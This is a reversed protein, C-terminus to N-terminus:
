PPFDFGLQVWFCLSGHLPPLLRCNLSSTSIKMRTLSTSTRRTEWSVTTCSTASKRQSGSACPPIPSDCLTPTEHLALLFCTRSSLCNFCHAPAWAWDLVAPVKPEPGSPGSPHPEHLPPPPPPPPPQNLEPAPSPSNISDAQPAAAAAPPEELHMSELQVPQEVAPPTVVTPPLSPM